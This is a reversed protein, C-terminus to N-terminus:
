EQEILSAASMVTTQDVTMESPVTHAIASVLVVWATILAVSICNFLRPRSSDTACVCM